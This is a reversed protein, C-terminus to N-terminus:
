LRMSNVGRLVGLLIKRELRGRNKRTDAQIERCSPINELDIERYIGTRARVDRILLQGRDAKTTREKGRPM